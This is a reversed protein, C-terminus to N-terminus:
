NSVRVVAEAGRAEMLSRLQALTCGYDKSHDTVERPCGEKPKDILRDEKKVSHRPAVNVQVDGGITDPASAGDAKTASAGDGYIGNSTVHCGKKM